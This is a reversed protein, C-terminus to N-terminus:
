EDAKVDKTDSVSRAAAAPEALYDAWGTYPTQEGSEGRLYALLAHAASPPTGSGEAQEPPWITEGGPPSIIMGDAGSVSIGTVEVQGLGRTTKGGLPLTGASLEALALCLLCWSARARGQVAEESLGTGVCGTRVNRLLQAPDVEIVIDNWQAHPYVIEFFLGGNIVGGTWRDIANHPIKLQKGLDITTCDRVRIAGRYETTGFMYRVLGPDRALQEHIDRSYRGGGSGPAGADETTEALFTDSETAQGTAYLVTRAIRSCRARLAGRISTGPLLLPDCCNEDNLTSTKARLPFLTNGDGTAQVDHVFVGTPSGWEITLRTPHIGNTSRSSESQGTQPSSVCNDRIFALAKEELTRRATGSAVTVGLKRLVEWLIERAYRARERRETACDSGSVAPSYPVSVGSDTDSLGAFSVRSVDISGLGGGSGGGLRLVGECLDVVSLALLLLAARLRGKVAESECPSADNQKEALTAVESDRLINRCLQPHDVEIRIPKWKAHPHLLEAYLARHAASGTVRDIANRTLKLSRVNGDKSASADEECDNVRVAGRYETTGFLYQSLPQEESDPTGRAESEIGACRSRLVGRISTGPLVLVATDKHAQCPYDVDGHTALFADDEGLGSNKRWNRLPAFPITEKEESHIGKPRHMGVFLGSPADWKIEISTSTSHRILNSKPELTLPPDESQGVLSSLPDTSTDKKDKKTVISVKKCTITKERLEIRGWGSGTKGGLSIMDHRILTLFAELARVVLAPTAPKTDNGSDGTNEDTAEASIRIDFSTGVPLYEFAFLAGDKVSGTAPDIATSMRHPLKGDKREWVVAHHFTLASARLPLSDSDGLGRERKSTGVEHRNEGGWLSKLENAAFGLEKAHEEFAARFAGKLSRGPLLAEGLGNRAFANPQATRGDDDTIPREPVSDIGGSHLVSTVRVPITMDYRFITM